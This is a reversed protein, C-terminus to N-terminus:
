ISILLITAVAAILYYSDFTIFESISLLLTYFVILALGILIYQVPHVPKKQMLEIIFFLSFTLGIFLIAYKICRDTKSYGDAPQVLAVGFAISNQDYKFNNLITGFPLNAKNFNWTATFGSDSVSRVTPLDSGDFSPSGWDSQLTFRSDGALPAFHLQESGKIKLNFHFPIKKEEDAASIAIPASLGTENIDNSPLGPSLEYDKGNYQITLKEEIGKFDSLGYCIRADQWQIFSSDIEKPIKFNFNGTNQLSSRYLLVKYISRLRLEHSVLGSVDLSDPLLFLHELHEIVKKDKDITVIKYPLFIYPGTLVQAKAWRNSVESVVESQRDKREKVLNSIFITPILMILILVGTIAAKFAIRNSGSTPTQPKNNEFTNTEMEKFQKSSQRNLTFFSSLQKSSFFIAALFCASLFTTSILGTIFANGFQTDGIIIASFAGYVACCFVCSIFFFIKKFQLPKKSKKIITLSIFVIVMLPLSGILAVPIALFSTWLPLYPETISYLLWGAGFAIGTLFWIKITLAITRM